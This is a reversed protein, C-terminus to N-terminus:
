VEYWTASGVHDDVYDKMEDMMDDIDEKSYTDGQFFPVYETGNFTYVVDGVIYLAEDDGESVDPLVECRIVQQKNHGVIPNINKDRDVLLLEGANDGSTIYCWLARDLDKFIGETLAYELNKQSGRCFYPTKLKAM